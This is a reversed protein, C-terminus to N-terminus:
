LEEFQQIPKHEFMFYKWTNNLALFYIQELKIRKAKRRTADVFAATKKWNTELDEEGDGRISHFYVIKNTKTKKKAREGGRGELWKVESVLWGSRPGIARTM